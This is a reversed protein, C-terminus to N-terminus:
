HVMVDSHAILPRRQDTEKNIHQVNTRYKEILKRQSLIQERLQTMLTVDRVFTVVLAVNGDDDFIPYGNLVLKKGKRDTQVQTAPKGSKVIRPNLITDFNYDRTLTEVNRGEIAKRELGTLREYMSNIRLTKGRRDSIYIGDSILDLIHGFYHRLKHDVKKIADNM